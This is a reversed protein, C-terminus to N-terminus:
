LEAADLNVKVEGCKVTFVRGALIGADNDVVAPM